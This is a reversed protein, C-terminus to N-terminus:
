FSNSKKKRVKLDVNFKNDFVAVQSPNLIEKTAYASLM